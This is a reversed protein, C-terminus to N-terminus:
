SMQSIECIIEVKVHVNLRDTHTNKWISFTIIKDLMLLYCRRPLITVDATFYSISSGVIKMVSHWWAPTTSGGSSQRKIHTMTLFNLKLLKQTLIEKLDLSNVGKCIPRSNRHHLYGKKQVKRLMQSQLLCLSILQWTNSHQLEWAGYISCMHM